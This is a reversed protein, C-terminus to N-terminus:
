YGVAYLHGELIVKEKEASSCRILLPKGPVFNAHKIEGAGWSLGSWIKKDYHIEVPVEKGEQEAYIKLVKGVPTGNPPGGPWSRMIAGESDRQQFIIRVDGAQPATVTAEITNAPLAEFTAPIPAISRPIIVDEQIGLEYAPKAYRGYGVAALQGPGLRIRNGHVVPIYGADRFILRGDRLPDQIRTLLPLTIEAFSQAPNVVTYIAGEADLSGFGYPQVDGPIGGFTKTRGTAQMEEYIRQVRAFWRADTDQLFELNGHITNVWGGRAVMLLLMGKWANTKRYYITGTNGIMFSTSDIRELPVFSEQYRRVMHDSYIDASRWFNVEPVDSPRPDGSYLSDFVGLWRLDVTNRFPFPGATSEVDGGFGNFAVLVVDPNKRRFAQLADRFAQENHARIQEPTQTKEAAPTAANFDVFDFKFMRIGRDYWYQLVDMFDPLFGGECFSMSGGKDNLSDRWAPAANIKVLTNTSFWLGPRIGNARCAAIWREPGHPWNPKRWTRYGGDPAFWFADMMYYDFHVGLKGLRVIQNLERMALEETLPINDSLEDYASWNNYVWVPDRLLPAGLLSADWAQRTSNPAAQPGAALAAGGCIALAALLFLGRRM